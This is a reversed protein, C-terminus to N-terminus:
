KNTSMILIQSDLTNRRTLSMMFRIIALM